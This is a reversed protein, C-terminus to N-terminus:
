ARDITDKGVALLPVGAGHRVDSITQGHVLDALGRHGHGGVVLIDLQEGRAIRVLERAVQGYGLVGRIGAINRGGLRAQLQAVLESMYREDERSETDGTQQGYWQGGVGEVVHILLLEAGHIEALSIAESLMGSDSAKAELAVGVRAFRRTAQLARASVDAAAVPPPPVHDREPRFIMWVLMAGLALAPPITCVMVLWGWSGAARSWSGIEGVVLLVNLVIIIGAIIWALVQVWARNVFPGMKPRSSTFKILPVVAFPLQMSLIVQSLILLKYSGTNGMVGIVIMAPVLAISRTILRRLWPRIRFHLFGEMTIQGALTGTLTSSQGACLLALAFAVPALATGLIDDLLAHAQDLENVEIGNRWFTAAALILIAANVFFAANLAVASDIFNYRCAQRIGQRTRQVNRTQALSSHLYLNHPMVTAGLMGIAVYLEARSLSGPVFGSAVGSWEPRSIFIQFIFCVGITFVLALIFAEMKRIGLRQLGLLVLVDFGTILVAVELPIGFLLNLGIATGLLEALDTAAIAVECLFFLVWRVPRPYSDRCAQALDRGTVLGLRASLTQLLVAMLNSMLLIWILRYGFSAGAELDTAWNGPDMYGVSVMYAPGLFAFLRRFLRPHDVGVSRHVDVLSPDPFPATAGGGAPSGSASALDDQRM